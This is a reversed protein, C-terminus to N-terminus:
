AEAKIKRYLYLFVSVQVIAALTWSIPFAGYLVKYTKHAQFYTFVYLIRTGCICIAMIWMSVFAKGIGRLMGTMTDAVAYVAYFPCVLSLRICAYKLVEPDKTYISAFTEANFGVFMFTLCFTVACFLSCIMVRKIRDYKKAGYNQSTFTLAAHQFSSMGVYLISEISSSTSNGAIVSAGFSNVASQIFLNSISFVMSSIGSPIGIRAMEIAKDKHLKISKIKVKYVEETTLFCRIIFTASVVHSFATAIAVGIVDLNFIAVLIVNFIFNIFGATTIYILPRKTDGFARLIAAGFNYIMLAPMGLFYIRLYLLAKDIIEVPTKMLKLMPLAFVQGIIFLSIGSLISVAFATDISERVDKPDNKGIMRATLANAGVSLGIFLFTFMNVIYTTSGVAALSDSGGFRGVVVTDAANFLTQIISTLIIPITFVIIKGLLPGNIMDVKSKSSM